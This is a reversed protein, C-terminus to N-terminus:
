LIGVRGFDIAEDVGLFKFQVGFIDLYQLEPAACTKRKAIVRVSM